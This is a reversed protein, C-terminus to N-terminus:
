RDSSRIWELSGERPARSDRGVHDVKPQAASEHVGVLPSIKVGASGEDERGAGYAEDGERAAKAGPRPACSEKPGEHSGAGKASGDQRANDDDPVELLTISSDQGQVLDSSTDRPKTEDRVSVASVRPAGNVDPPLNIEPELDCFRVHRGKNCGGEDPANLAGDQTTSAGDSGGGDTASNTKVTRDTHTDTPCPTLSPAPDRGM